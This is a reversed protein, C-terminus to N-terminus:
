CKRGFEVMLLKYFHGKCSFEGLPICSSRLQVRRFLVGVGSSCHSCNRSFTPM